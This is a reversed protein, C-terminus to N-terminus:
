VLVLSAGNELQHFNTEKLVEAKERGTNEAYAAAAVDIPVLVDNLLLKTFGYKEKPEDHTPIWYKANLLQKVALGNHGGMNADINAFRFGVLVHLIGHLVALFELQPVASALEVMAPEDPRLGHPLYVIAEPKTEAGGRSPDKFAIVIGKHITQVDQQQAMGGIGIWDPLPSVSTSRWDGTFTPMEVVTEFHDWAKVAKVTREEYAFIPVSRPLDILTAYNCHDTAPQSIAVADILSEPAPVDDETNGNTSCLKRAIGEIESAFREVDAINQAAPPITHMQEHFWSSTELNSGVLWPDILINFYKRPGSRPIQLLWSNDATLHHILPRQTDAASKISRRADLSM